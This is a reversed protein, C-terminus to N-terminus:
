VHREGSKSVLKIPESAVDDMLTTQFVEVKLRADRNGVVKYNGHVVMDYGLRVPHASSHAAKKKEKKKKRKQKEREMARLNLSTGLEEGFCVLQNAPVQFIIGAAFAPM